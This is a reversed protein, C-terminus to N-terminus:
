SSTFAKFAHGQKTIKIHKKNSFSESSKTEIFLSSNADVQLVKEAQTITKFLKHLTKPHEIIVSKIDIIIPNEFTNPQQTIRKSQKLSNTNKKRIVSQYHAKANCLNRIM